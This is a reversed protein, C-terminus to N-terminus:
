CWVKFRRRAPAISSGSETLMTSVHAKMGRTMGSQMFDLEGPSANRDNGARSTIPLSESRTALLSTLNHARDLARAYAANDSRFTRGRRHRAKPRAEHMPKSLADRLLARLECPGPAKEKRARDPADRRCSQAM